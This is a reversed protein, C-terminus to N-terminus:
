AASRTANARRAARSTRAYSRCDTCRCQRYEYAWRTGHRITDGSRYDRLTPEADCAAEWLVRCLRELDTM